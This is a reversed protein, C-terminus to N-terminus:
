AGAEIECVDVSIKKVEMDNTKADSTSDSSSLQHLHYTPREQPEITDTTCRASAAFM